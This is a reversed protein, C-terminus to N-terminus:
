ILCPITMLYYIKWSIQCWFSPLNCGYTWKASLCVCSEAVKLSMIEQGWEEHEIEARTEETTGACHEQTVDVDAPVASCGGPREVNPVPPM